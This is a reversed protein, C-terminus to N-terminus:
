QRKKIKDLIKVVTPFAIFSIFIKMKLVGIFVTRTIRNAKNSLYSFCAITSGPFSILATVDIAHKIDHSGSQM